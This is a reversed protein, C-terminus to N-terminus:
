AGTRPRIRCIAFGRRMELMQGHRHIDFPGEHQPRFACDSLTHAPAVKRGGLGSQRRGKTTGIRQGFIFAFALESLQKALDDVRAHDTVDLREISVKPNDKALAQLDAADQPNRCTAIVKWGDAAYLRTLELGIGKNAGTILVTFPEEAGSLAPFLFVATLLFPRLFRM